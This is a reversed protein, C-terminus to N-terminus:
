METGESEGRLIHPWQNQGTKLEASGREKHYEVTCTTPPQFFFLNSGVEVM